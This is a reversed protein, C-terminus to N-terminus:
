AFMPVRKVFTAGEESLCALEEIINFTFIECGLLSVPPIRLSPLEHMFRAVFFEVRDKAKLSACL